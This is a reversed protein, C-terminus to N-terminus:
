PTTEELEVGYKMTTLKIQEMKKVNKSLRSFPCQKNTVSQAILGMIRETSFEWIHSLPGANRTDNPIHILAHITLPCASLHSYEYQYYLRFADSTCYHALQPKGKTNRM